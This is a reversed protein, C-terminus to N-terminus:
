IFDQLLNLIGSLMSVGGSQWVRSLAAPNSLLYNCPAMAGTVSSVIFRMEEKSSPDADTSDLFEHLAKVWALHCQMPIRFFSHTQWAADSFRKDGPEPLLPSNGNLALLCDDLFRSWHQGFLNAPQTAQGFLQWCSRFYDHWDLGVLPNLSAFTDTPIWAAAPFDRIKM